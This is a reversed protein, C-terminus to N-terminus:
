SALQGETVTSRVHVGRPVRFYSWFALAGAAALGAGTLFLSPFGLATIIHGGGLAMASTSVGSAMTAAGSMLVRSRPPVIEQTYVTFAPRVILGLATAGVYGLSAAGWHSLLALPLLCLATGITGV